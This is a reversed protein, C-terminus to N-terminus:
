CITEEKGILLRGTKEHYLRQAILLAGEVPEKEMPILRFRAPSLHKELLPFLIDKQGCLGGALFVPLSSAFPIQHAAAAIMRAAYAMNKELIGQAIADGAKASLFVTDQFSAIYAKGREYFVALHTSASTGTKERIFSSILTKEGSGDEEQLAAAIADRGLTYGCGGEDFFQGWGAVRIRQKGHVGYVIFGTGMITLLCPDQDALAVLNEIDSGNEFAFFGYKEFHRHLTQAHNGTLGGGSIGAFLTIQRFPIGRCCERIGEDLLHLTNEMGIDNPNCPGKLISRLIGGEEDQLRFLTKTGGGDIGLFYIRENQEFLMEEMSIGFLSALQVAIEIPPLGDGKEWKSISKESYGIKEALQQQTWRQRERYFRLNRCFAIPNERM